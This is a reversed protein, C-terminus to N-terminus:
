EHWGLILDSPNTSAATFQRFRPWDNDCKYVVFVYSESVSKVMGKEPAGFKPTYTVQDGERFDSAKM